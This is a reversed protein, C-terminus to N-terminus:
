GRAPLFPSKRPQRINQVVFDITAPDNINRQALIVSVRLELEGEPLKGLEALCEDCIIEPGLICDPHMALFHKRCLFCELDREAMISM